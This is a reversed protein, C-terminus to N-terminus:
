AVEAAAQVLDVLQRIRRWNEKVQETVSAAPYMERSSGYTRAEGNITLRVMRRGGVKVPVVQVLVDGIQVGESAGELVGEADRRAAAKREALSPGWPGVEEHRGNVLRKRQAGCTCEEAFEVGGHAAPNQDRAPWAVPATFVRESVVKSADHTHM